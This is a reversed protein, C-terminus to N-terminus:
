SAAAILTGQHLDVCLKEPGVTYSFFFPGMGRHGFATVEGAVSVISSVGKGLNKPPFNLKERRNGRVM